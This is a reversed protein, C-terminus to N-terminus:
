FGRGLILIKYRIFNISVFPSAPEPMDNNVPALTVQAVPADSLTSPGASMNFVHAPALNIQGLNPDYSSTSPLPDPMVEPERTPPAIVKDYSRKKRSFPAEDPMNKYKPIEALYENSM